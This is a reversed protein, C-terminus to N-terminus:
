ETDTEPAEGALTLYVERRATGLLAAVAAVQEPSGTRAVQEVADALARLEHRLERGHGRGVQEWPTGLEDRHEEVYATGADTLTALKRGGEESLLVLGEDALLSLAPYVAGASPRWRGDTREALEGIIQYGHMPQESLLLLIAARIEGRGARRPGRPGRHGGRGGHGHPGFGGRPGFDGHRERTYEDPIGILAPRLGPVFIPIDVARRGRNRTHNQTHDHTRM